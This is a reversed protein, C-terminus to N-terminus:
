GRGAAPGRARYFECLRPRDRFFEATLGFGQRFDHAPEWGLERRAKGSDAVWVSTDWSRNSMSGWKPEDAVGLTQRAVEVVERLPTQVGTGINYVAGPEQGGGAAALLYAAVVDDVHVYDRAVGPDALPPLRGELGHLVLTPILRAPEEYPGYVSYLRLTPIHAGHKQATFRCYMTAAAKAVAYHSNPELWEEESPAHRKFGYESSSGTNVFAAFGHPLCAELLNITGTFNTEVIQRLDNQWSYAGSVALHFVWEPKAEAVARAVGEADALGARHLRLDDLVGALRWPDHGPRVLLHVEHGDALLRRALNAGVFGTGGTVLVRKASPM